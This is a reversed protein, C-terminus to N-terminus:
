KKPPDIIIETGDNRNRILLDYGIADCIEAMLTIGPENGRAIYSSLYGRSRGMKLSTEVTSLEGRGFLSKLMTKPEM